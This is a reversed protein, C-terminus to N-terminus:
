NQTNDYDTNMQQQPAPNPNQQPAQANQQPAPTPNQQPAQQRMQGPMQANPTQAGQQPAFPRRQAFPRQAAFIDPGNKGNSPMKGNIQIVNKVIIITLMMGEYVIRVLIPGLIMLLIGELAVSHFGTSYFGFDYSYGSFLMFFGTFLCFLTSLIYLCKLIKEILLSKFNFIDALVQFFKNLTNKKSEPTVLIMILVTAIIAFITGIIIAVNVPM